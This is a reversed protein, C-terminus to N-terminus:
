ELRWAIYLGTFHRLTAGSCEELAELRRGIARLWATLQRRQLWNLVRIGVYRPGHVLYERRKIEFGLQCLVRETQWTNLMKGLAFSYLRLRSVVRSPLWARLIVEPNWPNELTLLVKGRPALVYAFEKLSDVISEAAEFQDLTSLSLIAALSGTAFPLARVDCVVLRSPAQGEQVLRSRAAQAVALDWDTGVLSVESGTIRFHHRPGSAEAFLDTKVVPGAFDGPLGRQIWRDLIHQQTRWWEGERPRISTTAAKAMDAGLRLNSQGDPLSPYGSWGIM